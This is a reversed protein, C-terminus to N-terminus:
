EGLGKHPEAPTTVYKLVEARINLLGWRYLIDAYATKFRDYQVLRGVDLVRCGPLRRRNYGSSTGSPRDDGQKIPQSVTDNKIMKLCNFALKTYNPVHIIYEVIVTSGQQM